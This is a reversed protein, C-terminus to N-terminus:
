VSSPPVFTRLLRARGRPQIVFPPTKAPVIWVQGPVFEQGAFQGRGELCSLFEAQPGGAHSQGGTLDMSETRFYPCEVLLRRGDGLEVPLTLGPHRGLDAVQLSQDLHLERPRGYDYLRYTVDSNQQIECLAMGAGIAHVTGAPVLFNEGPRPELWHLLSEIEGSLAAARVRERSLPQEFGLALSAGPEARLVHWMETKGPGAASDPPHVQVSLKGSTFLFKVLLRPEEPATFWVEGTKASSRPYWPETDSSGWVKELATGALRRISV